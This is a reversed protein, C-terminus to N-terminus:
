TGINIWISEGDLHQCAGMMVDAVKMIISDCVLASGIARAMSM